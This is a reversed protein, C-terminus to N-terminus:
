YSCELFSDIFLRIDFGMPLLATQLISETCVDFLLESFRHTQKAAPTPILPSVFRKRVRFDICRRRKAAVKASDAPPTRLVPQTYSKHSIANRSIVATIQLKAPQTKEEAVSAQVVSAFLDHLAIVGQM